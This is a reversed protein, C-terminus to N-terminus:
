YINFKQPNHFPISAPNPHPSNSSVKAITRRQSPEKVVCLSFVYDWNRFQEEEFLGSERQGLCLQLSHIKFYRGAPGLPCFNLHSGPLRLLEHITISSGHDVAMFCLLPTVVRSKGWEVLSAAPWSADNEGCESHRM